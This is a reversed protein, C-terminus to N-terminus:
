DIKKGYFFFFINRYYKKLIQKEIDSMIFTHLFSLKKKLAYYLILSGVDHM